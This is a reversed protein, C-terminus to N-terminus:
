NAKLSAVKIKYEEFESQLDELGILTYTDYNKYKALTFKSQRIDKELIDLARVFNYEKL